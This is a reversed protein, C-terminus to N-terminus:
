ICDIYDNLFDQSDNIKKILEELEKIKVDEVYPNNQKHPVNKILYINYLTVSFFSMFISALEVNSYINSFWVLCYISLFISFIICLEQEVNKLYFKINSTFHNQKQKELESVNKRLKELEVLNKLLGRTYRKSNDYEENEDELEKIRENLENNQKRIDRNEAQLSDNMLIIYKEYSSALELVQNKTNENNLYINIDKKEM